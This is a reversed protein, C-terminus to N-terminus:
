KYKVGTEASESNIGVSALGKAFRNAEVFKLPIVLEGTTDIYGKKTGKTVVALGEYFNEIDDYDLRKKLHGATDMLFWNFYQKVVIAGNSINKADQLNDATFNGSHHLLAYTGNTRKVVAYGDTFPEVGSFLAGTLPKDNRDIFGSLLGQHNTEFIVEALGDKFSKARYYKPAIIIRGQADLYGYQGWKKSPEIEQKTIPVWVRYEFFYDPYYRQIMRMPMSFLAIGDSFKYVTINKGQKAILKKGSIDFIDKEFKIIREVDEGACSKDVKNEPITVGNRDIHYKHGNKEVEADSTCFNEARQWQPPLAFAGTRNIYGYYVDSQNTRASHTTCGTTLLIFLLPPILFKSLM